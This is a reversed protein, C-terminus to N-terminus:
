RPRVGDSEAVELEIDTGTSKAVIAAAHHNGLLGQLYQQRQDLTGALEDGAVFQTLPQPGAIRKDVELV